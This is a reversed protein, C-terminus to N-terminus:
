LGLLQKKKADFEEQSIVGSDLLDKYKKLEDANSQSIEPKAASVPATKSQREILLNGICKHLDDRNKIALFAIKGSSTSVAIGKPWGSGVASISDLPLDVRKGFAAKGYVRKDTVTLEIKSLWSYIIAGIILALVLPVVVWSCANGIDIELFRQGQRINERAYSSGIAEYEQTYKEIYELDWMIDPVCIVASAILGVALGIVCIILFLKKVNYRTSQMIFKEEM